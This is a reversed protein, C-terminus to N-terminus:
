GGGYHSALHQLAEELGAFYYLDIGGPTGQKETRGAGYIVYDAQQGAENLGGALRRAFSETGGIRFYDFSGYAGFFAIKM